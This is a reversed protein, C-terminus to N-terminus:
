KWDKTGRKHCYPCDVSEYGQVENTWVQEPTRTKGGCKSHFFVPVLKKKGTTLMEGRTMRQAKSANFTVDFFDGNVQHKESNELDYYRLNNGVRRNKIKYYAYSRAAVAQAKLAELPWNPNMEKALVSGIYTELSVKNIVDCGKPSKPAVLQISGRYKSSNVGLLGTRSTINALLLPQKLSQHKKLPTCNFSFSKKGPYSLRKGGSHKVIDLGSIEVQKVNSDILVRISPTTGAYLKPLILLFSALGLCICKM